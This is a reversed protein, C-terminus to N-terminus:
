ARRESLRQNNRVSGHADTHGEICLHLAPHDILVRSITDLTAHSSPFLNDSGAAFLINRALLNISDSLSEKNPPCGKQAVPGPTHPCPDEDDNTGDNDSDPM